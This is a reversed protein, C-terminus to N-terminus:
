IYTKLNVPWYGIFYQWPRADNDENDGIKELRKKELVVSSIKKMNPM